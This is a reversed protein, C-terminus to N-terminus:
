YEVKKLYLGDPPVTKGAKTRAGGQLLDDLISIDMKGRAIDIMTGVLIRVMNYLFGNGTIAFIIMDGDQRFDFAFITRVTNEKINSKSAMFSSFDHEGVVKSCAKHMLDLDLDYGCELALGKEFVSLPRNVVVKYEYTKSKASFRSNFGSDVEYSKVVRIDEPLYRNICLALKDPSITTDTEFNVVQGLSHVGADTRGSAYSTVNQGTAQAIAEELKQQISIGNLQKQYGCYNSGIYELILCINKM